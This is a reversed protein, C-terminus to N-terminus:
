GLEELAKRRDVQQVEVVEAGLLLGVPDELLEVRDDVLAVLEPREIRSVDFRSWSASSSCTPGRVTERRTSISRRCTGSYPSSMRVAGPGRRTGLRGTGGYDEASIGPIPDDAGLPAILALALDDVQEGLLRVHDHAELAAVVGAVRDDAVALLEDEM